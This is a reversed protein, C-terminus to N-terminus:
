VDGRVGRALDKIARQLDEGIVKVAKLREETVAGQAPVQDEVYTKIRSAIELFPELEPNDFLGVYGLLITTYISAVVNNRAQTVTRNFSGRTLGARGRRLKAREQGSLRKGALEEGLLSILLSEFQIETLNSHQLLVKVVPDQFVEDLPGTANPQPDALDFLDKFVPEYGRSMFINHCGALMAVLERRDFCTRHNTSVCNVPEAEGKRIDCGTPYQIGYIMYSGNYQIGYVTPSTATLSGAWLRM